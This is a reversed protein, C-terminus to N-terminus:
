GRGSPAARPGRNKRAYRSFVLPLSLTFGWTIRKRLRARPPPYGRKTRRAGLDTRRVSAPTRGFTPRSPLPPADSPADLGALAPYVARATRGSPALM